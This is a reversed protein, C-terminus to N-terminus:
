GTGRGGGMLKVEGSEGRLEKEGERYGGGM